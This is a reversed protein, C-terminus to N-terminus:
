RWDWAGNAFGFFFLGIAVWVVGYQFGVGGREVRGGASPWPPSRAARASGPSSQGAVGALRDFRGRHRDTM